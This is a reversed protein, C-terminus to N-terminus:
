VDLPRAARQYDGTFCLLEFLFIRQRVDTPHARVEQTLQEIAATLHGADLLEKAHMVTRDEHALPRQGATSPPCPWLRRQFTWVSRSTLPMADTIMWMRSSRSASPRIMVVIAHHSRRSGM